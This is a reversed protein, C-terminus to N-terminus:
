FRNLIWESPGPTPPAELIERGNKRCNELLPKVPTLSVTATEVGVTVTAAVYKGGCVFQPHPDVHYKGREVPPEPLASFIPLEQNTGRDYFLVKCPENKWNYPTQDGVWLTRDHNAHCHCIPRKWVHTVKRTDVDCEYAGLSYDM